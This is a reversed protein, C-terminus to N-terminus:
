DPKLGIAKVLKANKDVEGRIFTNFQEPSNSQPDLGQRHLAERMEPTEIAKVLIANLRAVIEKPMGTPGVVGNWNAYDYGPLGSEAITPIKAIEQRFTARRASSVAIPRLKNAAMLPILSPVSLFSMEIQGSANAMANDAGGKYPIHVIDVKAMLKFLEAMLHPPSGNGVTGYSMKGPNARALGILEKVNRAPVSPHVVLVFPAIAVLSVGELERVLDYPLKARLSPLVAATAGVILLTYGDPPSKAVMEYAIAGSAGPRHVVLVQQGLGPSLNQAVIRAIADAVGGPTFGVVLRIPKNPYTQAAADISWQGAWLALAALLPAM